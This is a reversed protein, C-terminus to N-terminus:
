KKEKLRSSWNKARKEGDFNEEEEITLVDQVLKATEKDLYDLNKGAYIIKELARNKMRQVTERSVAIEDAINVETLHFYFNKEIVLAEEKPIKLAEFVKQAIQPSCIRFCKKVIKKNLM